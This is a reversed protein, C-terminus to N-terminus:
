DLECLALAKCLDQTTQDLTGAFLGARLFVVEILSLGHTSITQAPDVDAKGIESLIGQWRNRFEGPSLREFAKTFSDMFPMQASFHTALAGYFSIKERNVNSRPLQPRAEKALLNQIFEIVVAPDGTQECQTFAALWGDSFLSKHRAFIPVLSEGKAVSDRLDALVLRYEEFNLEEQLIELLRVMPLGADFLIKFYGFWLARRDEPLTANSNLRLELLSAARPAYSDLIGVSWGLAILSLTSPPILEAKFDSPVAGATEECKLILERFLPRARPDRIEGELALLAEHLTIGQKVLLGLLGWGVIHDRLIVREMQILPPM